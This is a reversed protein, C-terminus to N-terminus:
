EEETAPEDDTGSEEDMEMEMQGGMGGMMFMPIVQTRVMESVSSILESPILFTVEQAVNGVNVTTFAIPAPKKLTLKVPLQSQLRTAIVDVAGLLHDLSIYGVAVQNQRPIRGAVKVIGPEKALPAEGKQATEIIKALREEGGGFAIVIINDDVAAVRVLIGEPGIVAKVQQIAEPPVDSIKELDVKLVDVSAGAVQAADAQWTIAGIIKDVEAQEMGDAKAVGAAIEKVREFGKRLDDRWAKPDEVWAVSSFGLVGADGEADGIKSIALNARQTRELLSVWLDVLPQLNEKTLPSGPDDDMQGLQNMVGQATQRMQDLYEPTNAVVAGMAFIYDEQPLGTLLPEKPPKTAAVMRAMETDPKVRSYLVFKLGVRADLGLGVSVEDSQTLFKELQQVAQNAQEEPQAGGASVGAFAERLGETIQRRLGDSLEDFNIWLFLDQTAFAKVRDPAMAKAVGDGEAKAAAILAEPRADPQEPAKAILVFGERTAAISPAGSLDLRYLGDTAEEAGMSTLLAKPDSAPVYLVLRDPIEEVDEINKANLLVLAAGGNERLGEDMQLTMKLWDLPAPFMGEPGLPFGIQTSIAIIDQNLEGLSRLALFATADQPIADLLAARAEGATETAPTQAWLAAPMMAAGALCLLSTRWRRNIQQM